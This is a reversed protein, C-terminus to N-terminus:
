SIHACLLMLVVWTVELVCVQLLRECLQKIKLGARFLSRDQRSLVGVLASISRFCRLMGVYFGFDCVFCRYLAASGRLIL